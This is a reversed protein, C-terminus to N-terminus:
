KNIPAIQIETYEMLEWGPKQGCRDCFSMYARGLSMECRPCVPYCYGSVPLRVWKTVPIPIRYSLADLRNRAELQRASHMKLLM